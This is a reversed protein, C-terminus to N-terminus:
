AAKGLADLMHLLQTKIEANASMTLTVQGEPKTIRGARQVINRRLTDIKPFEWLPSRKETTNRDQAHTQM